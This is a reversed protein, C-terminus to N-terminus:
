RRLRRWLWVLGLLTAGALVARAQPQRALDALAFRTAAPHTAGGAGAAPLARPVAPEGELPDPEVEVAEVELAEPELEPAPETAGDQDGAPAAEAEVATADHEATREGELPTVNGSRSRGAALEEGDAPADQEADGRADDQEPAPRRERQLSPVAILVVIFGVIGLGLWLEEETAVMVGVSALMVGFGAVVAARRLGSM